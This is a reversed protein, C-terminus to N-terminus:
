REQAPINYQTEAITKMGRETERLQRILKGEQNYQYNIAFHQDDFQTLLKYTAPDYVYCNMQANLPQMRIDDVFLEVDSLKSSYSAIVWMYLTLNSLSTETVWEEWEEPKVKAEYLTWEGTRAIKEFKVTNFATASSSGDQGQLYFFSLDDSNLTKLWVKVSIGNDIMQSSVSNNYLLINGIYDGDNDADTLIVELANSGSHATQTTLTDFSDKTQVEEFCTYGSSSADCETENEFSEFIVSEYDANAASLYVLNNNYGVKNCSYIDLINKEELTKGNPACLSVTNTELWKDDDNNATNDWDFLKFDKLIGAEYSHDVDADELNSVDTKYQYLSQVYWKGAQGTEVPNADGDLDLLDEEDDSLDNENSLVSASAALVNDINDETLVSTDDFSGYMLLSGIKMSLINARNSQLIQISCTTNDYPFASSPSLDNIFLTLSSSEIETINAIYPTGTCTGDLYVAILDGLSFKNIVDSYDGSFNIRCRNDRYIASTNYNVVIASNNDPEIELTECGAKQGIQTYYMSAPFNFSIYKGKHATTNNDFKQQDYIGAREQVIADGTNPDFYKNVLTTNVGDKYTTISKIVAPCYVIKNTVHTYIYTEDINNFTTPLAYPIIYTGWTGVGADVTATNDNTKEYIRKSETVVEVEKGLPLSGFSEPSYMVPIDEGINFYNYTTSSLPNIENISNIDEYDGEYHTTKKPQGNMNNIVFRFGQTAWCNYELENSFLGFHPDPDYVEKKINTKEMGSYDGDQTGDFPYDKCTWFDSTVFGPNTTGSYINKAVVRSYGISPSPLLLEGIPGEFQSKDEGAVLVEEEHLRSRKNLYCVLVNEERAANPENTAVGSCEGELTEYVYETGYLKADAKGSEIGKDYTLIRKVRVGGGLKSSAVPIRLYSSEPNLTECAKKYVETDFGGVWVDILQYLVDEVDEGDELADDGCEQGIDIGKNAKYYEQCAICASSFGGDVNNVDEDPNGLQVYLGDPAVGDDDIDVKMVNAYGTIYENDDDCENDAMLDYLLKFYMKKPNRGDCGDIFIQQIWKKIAKKDDDNDAGIDSLNVYYKSAYNGDFDERDEDTKAGYDDAQKVESLSVMAMARRDQVDTYKNQEYQVHIEASTPLIIQKLKWASPDFNTASEDLAVDPTQDIWDMQKAARAQGDPRYNGWCDIAAGAEDYDPNEDLDSKGDNDTDVYNYNQYAAYIDTKSTCVPTDIETYDYEYTYASPYDTTPYEYVFQYPSISANSVDGYEFWVKKLTLKGSGGDKKMSSSDLYDGNTNHQRQALSYDYEFYVRKIVEGKNGDEDKAYLIIEDLRQLTKNDSLNINNQSADTDAEADLGDIRETTIFEAIHTATEITKLYCIEKDGSSYSGLDDESDSYQNPQYILGSWPARWHYWADTNESGKGGYKKTYNFKTWGGIDDKDPGDFDVDIYNPTTIETILYTSAYADSIEQGLKRENDSEDKYVLYDGVNDEDSDVGVSVNKENKSYLPLAYVYRNGDKNTIAFEGIGSTNNDRNVMEEIDERHSYCSYANSMEENTHYGIYSSRGVDEGDNIEKYLSTESFSPVYDEVGKKDEALRATEASVDGAMSVYGGMDGMFRFFYSQTSTFDFDDNQENAWSAIENKQGSGEATSLSGSLNLGVNMHTGVSSISSTQNSYAPRFEGIKSSYARFTGSLGEGVVNFLDPSAFPTPLIQDHENFAASREINYDMVDGEHEAKTAIHSYLYGQYTKEDEEDEEEVEQNNYSGFISAGVGIPFPSPTVYAGMSISFANSTYSSETTPISRNGQAYIDYNSSISQGSAMEIAKDKIVSGISPLPGGGVKFYLGNTAMSNISICTSLFGIMMSLASGYSYSYRWGDDKLSITTTKMGLQYGVYPVSSIVLGKYNNYSISAQYGASLGLAGFARCSLSATVGASFTTNKPMKNYYTVNGNQVDDAFAQKNRIIAGPSLTWGYGVWSPEAEAGISSRYSLSLAYGGGNTGPIDIVPINYAFDGSFLNVMDTTGVSEFSSFEPQTPGSVSAFGQLPAISQLLISLATIIAIAKKTTPQPNGTTLYAKMTYPKFKLNKSETKDVRKQKM